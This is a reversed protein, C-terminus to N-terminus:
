EPKDFVNRQRLLKQVEPIVRPPADLAAVFEDWKEPSLHFHVQDALINQAAEFAHEIMFNTLTTRRLEAARAIIEKQKPRM